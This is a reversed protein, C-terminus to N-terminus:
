APAAGNGIKMASVSGDDAREGILVEETLLFIRCAGDCFNAEDARMTEDHSSSWQARMAEISDFYLEVMGDFPAEGILNEQFFSVVIKRVPNVQLSARELKSHSELWYRRFEAQSMGPRRKVLGIVKVM